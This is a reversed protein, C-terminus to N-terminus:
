SRRIRRRATTGAMATATSTTVASTPEHPPLPARDGAAPDDVVSFGTEPELEPPLTGTSDPDVEDAPVGEVALVDPVEASQAV